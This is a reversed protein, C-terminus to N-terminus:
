RQFVVNQSGYLGGIAMKWIHNYAPSRPREPDIKVNAILYTAMFSCATSKSSNKVLKERGRVNRLQARGPQTVTTLDYM